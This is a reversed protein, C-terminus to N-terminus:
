RGIAVLFIKTSAGSKLKTMGIGISKSAKKGM